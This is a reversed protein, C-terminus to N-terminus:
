HKLSQEREKLAQLVYKKVDELKVEINLLQCLQILMSKQEQYKGSVLFIMVLEQLLLLKINPDQDVIPEIVETVSNKQRVKGWIRDAYDEPINYNKAINYVVLKQSETIKENATALATLTEVYTIKDELSKFLEM